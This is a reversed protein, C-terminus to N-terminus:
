DSISVTRLIKNKLKIENLEFSTLYNQWLTFIIKNILIAIFPALLYYIHLTTTGHILNFILSDSNIHAIEKIGLIKYGIFEVTLLSTLYFLYFIPYFKLKNSFKDKFHSFSICIILISVSWCGFAWFNLGSSNLFDYNYRYQYFGIWIFSITLSTVIAPFYSSYKIENRSNFIYKGLRFNLFLGSLGVLIDTIQDKITEPKFINFAIYILYIEVVEYLVLLLFTILYIRRIRLNSLIVPIFFGSFFHVLSWYDFFFYKNQYLVTYLWETNVRILKLIEALEM